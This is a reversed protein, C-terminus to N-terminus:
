AHTNLPKGRSAQAMLPINADVDLEIENWGTM